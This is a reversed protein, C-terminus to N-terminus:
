DCPEIQIHPQYREDKRYTEIMAMEEIEVNCRQILARMKVIEPGLGRKTVQELCIEAWGRQEIIEQRRAPDPVKFVCGTCAFSIPCIAHCTCEGGPVKALTGVQQKAEEYQRQLEAPARVFAEEVNGLQTAFRDLLSNATALVQQWPPAAYYQTVRVNKHHLMVAVIDLPVQEVQHIHTAFVHRLSHAKLAVTQGEPTQFVMGHCLFRM